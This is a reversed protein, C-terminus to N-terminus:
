LGETKVGANKALHIVGRGERPLGNFSEKGAPPRTRAFLGVADAERDAMAGLVPGGFRAHSAEPQVRVARGAFERALGLSAAGNRMAAIASKRSIGLRAAVRAPSMATVVRNDGSLCFALACIRLYAARHIAEGRTRRPDFETIRAVLASLLVAHPQQDAREDLSDDLSDYDFPSTLARDQQRITARHTDNARHTDHM